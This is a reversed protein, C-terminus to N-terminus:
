RDIGLADLGVYFVNGHGNQISRLAGQLAQYDFRRRAPVTFASRESTFFLFKGDPSLSPANEDQETNIGAGLHRAKTWAGGKRVSLWLDGRPYQFGHGDITGPRSENGPPGNGSSSFFLLSEDPSVFPDADNFTSNVEPGLKEPPQWAGDSFRARYLQPHFRQERDSAFYLTGESTVSAAWNWHRDSNVPEPLPAPESWGEGQRQAVWIRFGRATTGPAPRSSTFYLKEGDPSLRPLTDYTPGGSFSVVEPESWSGSRFHSVCIIGLRPYTTYQGIKAFYYSEGDPAFSGNVEDDETSVIGPAFIQPIRAPRLHQAAAATSLFCVFFLCRRM